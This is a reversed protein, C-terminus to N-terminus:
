PEEQLHSSNESGELDQNLRLLATKIKKEIEHYELVHKGTYIFGLALYKEKRTLVDYLEHKNKRYGERMLRKLKNREVALKFKKKSVTFLVRAPHHAKFLDSPRDLELYIIKFPYTFFSKNGLFLNRILTRNKLRESEKLTFRLQM